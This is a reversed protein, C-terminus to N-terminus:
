FDNKLEKFDQVLLRITILRGVAEHTSILSIVHYKKRTEREM